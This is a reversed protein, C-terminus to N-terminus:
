AMVAAAAPSRADTGHVTTSAVRSCPTPLPIMVCCRIGRINVPFSGVAWPPGGVAVKRHSPTVGSLSPISLAM